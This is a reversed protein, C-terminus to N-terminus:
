AGVALLAHAVQSMKERLSTDGLDRIRNELDVMAELAYVVKPELGLLYGAEMVKERERQSYGDASSVRIAGRILERARRGGKPVGRLLDELRVTSPDFAEAERQLAEPVGIDELAKKMAWMETDSVGDAALIVKITRIHTLAEDYSFEHGLHKRAVAAVQDALELASETM